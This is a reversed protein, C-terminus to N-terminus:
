DGRIPSRKLLSSATSPASRADSCAGDAGVRAVLDPADVFLRGGVLVRLDAPM